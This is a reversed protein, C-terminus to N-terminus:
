AAAVLTGENLTSILQRAEIPFSVLQDNFAIEGAVKLHVYAYLTNVAQDDQDYQKIELWGKKTDGALAVYDATVLAQDLPDLGYLLEFALPGMEQATFKATLARRTEVVDKLELRGPNPAWVEREEQAKEISLEVIAGLDIWGTDEPNPRAARGATGGPGPLTFVDGDRFFRAHNGVVIPRTQM